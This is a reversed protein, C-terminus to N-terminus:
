GSSANIKKDSTLSTHSKGRPVIRRQSQPESGAVSSGVPPAGDYELDIARDYL